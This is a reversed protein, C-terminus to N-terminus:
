LRDYEAPEVKAVKAMAAEFKGRDGRKARQELYEETMLASVKEVIALTVFQNIISIQEKKALGRITDHLSNPLRLSIASM